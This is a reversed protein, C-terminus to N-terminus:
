NCIYMIEETGTSASQVSLGAHQTNSGWMGLVGTIDSIMPMTYICSQNKLYEGFTQYARFSLYRLKINQNEYNSVMIHFTLCGMM